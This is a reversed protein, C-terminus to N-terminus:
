DIYIECFDGYLTKVKFPVEFSLFFYHNYKPQQFIFSPPPPHHYMKSFDIMATTFVKLIYSCQKNNYQFNITLKTKGFISRFGTKKVLNRLLSCYLINSIQYTQKTFIRFINKKYITEYRCFFTCPFRLRALKAQFHTWIVIEPIRNFEFQSKKEAWGM